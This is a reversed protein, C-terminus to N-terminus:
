MENCVLQLSCMSKGSLTSKYGELVQVLRQDGEGRCAAVRVVVATAAVVVVAWRTTWKIAVNM